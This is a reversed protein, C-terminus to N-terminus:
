LPKSIFEDVIIGLIWSIALQIPKETYKVGVMAGITKLMNSVLRPSNQYVKVLTPLMRIAEM